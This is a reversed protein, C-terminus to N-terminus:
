EYIGVTHGALEMATDRAVNINQLYNKVAMIGYKPNVREDELELEVYGGEATEGSGILWGDEELVDDLGRKLADLDMDEPLSTFHIKMEM